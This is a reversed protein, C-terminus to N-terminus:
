KCQPRAGTFAEDLMEILAQRDYTCPQGENLQVLPQLQRRITIEAEDQNPVVLQRRKPQPHLRALEVAAAM